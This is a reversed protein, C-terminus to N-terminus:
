QQVIRRRQDPRLTEFTTTHRPDLEGGLGFRHEEARYAGVIRFVAPRHHHGRGALRHLHSGEGLVRRLATGGATDARM